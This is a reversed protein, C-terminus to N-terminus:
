VVSKRDTETRFIEEWGLDLVTAEASIDISLLYGVYQPIYVINVLNQPIIPNKQSFDLAANDLTAELNDYDRRYTDLESNLGDRPYLRKFSKSQEFDIVNNIESLTKRFVDADLQNIIEGFLVTSERGNIYQMEDCISISSELFAKLQVWGKVSPKGMQILSLTQNINPIRKLLNLLNELYQSNEQSCLIQVTNLRENILDAKALPASFWSKLKRYGLQTRTHNVLDFICRLHRTGDKLDELSANNINFIHLAYLSEPEIYM